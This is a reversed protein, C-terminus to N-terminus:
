RRSHDALPHSACVPLLSKWTGVETKWAGRQDGRLLLCRSFFYYCGTKGVESHVNIQCKLMNSIPMFFSPMDYNLPHHKRGWHRVSDCAELLMQDSKHFVTNKLLLFSKWLCVKQGWYHNNKEELNEYVM